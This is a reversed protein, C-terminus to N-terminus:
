LHVMCLRFARLIDRPTMQLRVKQSPRDRLHRSRRLPSLLLRKLNSNRNNRV